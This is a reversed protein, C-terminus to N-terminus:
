SDYTIPEMWYEREVGCAALFERRYQLPTAALSRHPPQQRMDILGVAIRRVAFQWNDTPEGDEEYLQKAESMEEALMEAIKKDQQTLM